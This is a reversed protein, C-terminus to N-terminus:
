SRKLLKDILKILAKIPHIGTNARHWDLLEPLEDLNISFSHGSSFNASYGRLEGKTPHYFPTVSEIQSPVVYSDKFRVLKPM